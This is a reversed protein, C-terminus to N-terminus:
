LYLGWRENCQRVRGGPLYHVRLVVRALRIALQANPADVDIEEVAGGWGEPGTCYVTYRRLRTGPRRTSVPLGRAANAMRARVRPM